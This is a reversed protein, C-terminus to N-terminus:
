GQRENLVWLVTDITVPVRRTGVCRRRGDSSRWWGQHEDLVRFVAGKM